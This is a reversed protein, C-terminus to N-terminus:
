FVSNFPVDSYHPDYFCQNHCCFIIVCWHRDKWWTKKLRNNRIGTVSWHRPCLGGILSTCCTWSHKTSNSSSCEFPCVSSKMLRLMEGQDSQVRCKTEAKEYHTQCHCPTCLLAANQTRAAALCLLQCLGGSCPRGQIGQVMHGVAAKCLLEWTSASFNSTHEPIPNGPAKPCKVMMGAPEAERCGKLETNLVSPRLTKRLKCCGAFSSLM